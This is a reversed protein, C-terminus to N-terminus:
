ADKIVKCIYAVQEPALSHFSPLNIGRSSLDFAVPFAEESYFAPMMTAPYFFRRTEVGSASLKQRIDDRMKETPALVSVMWYSSDCESHGQCFELDTDALGDKYWSVLRKKANLTSGANELQALGIAACVNTMRYNFAVEDHWYERSKSVAHSKLSSARDIVHSHRSVVMGGEGTTITKNGFFSFTAVDGFTGAHANRFKSGFAEAADEILFLNNEDCLERLATMDCMEGYLHVALVAKTKSTIREAVKGVDLNWTKYESDVFVPKAGVYAIANVSAVYTFTPVIVEDLDGINLALLALHLAVTGNSVSTSHEVGIFESFQTEFKSVYQGRSSIWGTEFCDIVYKLENGDLSPQYVPISMDQM